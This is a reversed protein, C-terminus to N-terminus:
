ETPEVVDGPTVSDLFGIDEDPDIVYRRGIEHDGGQQSGTSV